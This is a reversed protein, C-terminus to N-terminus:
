LHAYRLCPHPCEDEVLGGGSDRSASGSRDYGARRLRTLIHELVEGGHMHALHAVNELLFGQAMGVVCAGPSMSPKIVVM